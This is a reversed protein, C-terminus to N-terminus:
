YVALVVVTSPPHRFLTGQEGSLITLGEAVELPGSVGSSNCVRGWVM